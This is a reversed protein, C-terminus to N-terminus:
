RDRHLGASGAVLATEIGRPQLDMPEACSIELGCKSPARKSCRWQTEGAHGFEADQNGVLLLTHKHQLQQPNPSSLRRVPM